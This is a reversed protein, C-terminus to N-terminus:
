LANSATGHTWRAPRAASAPAHPCASSEEPLYEATHTRGQPHLWKASAACAHRVFRCASPGAQLAALPAARGRKTFLRFAGAFACPKAKGNRRPMRGPGWPARQRLQHQAPFCGQRISSKRARRCGSKQRCLARCSQSAFHRLCIEASPPRPEAFYFVRRRRAPPLFIRHQPM